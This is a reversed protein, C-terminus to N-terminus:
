ARALEARNQKQSLSAALIPNDALDGTIWVDVGLGNCNVNSIKRMASQPM